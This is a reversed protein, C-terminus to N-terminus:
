TATRPSRARAPAERSDTPALSAEGAFLAEGERVFRTAGVSRYFSLARELQEEGREKDDGEFLNKAARLRAEAEDSLSGIKEYADAARAFEGAFYWKGAEAWVPDRRSTLVRGGDEGLEFATVVIYPLDFGSRLALSDFIELSEDLAERADDTRGVLLLMRGYIGLASALVSTDVSSRAAEISAAADDIGAGDGRSLRILGRTQLAQWAHYHVGQVEDLYADAAELAEDWRGQRLRQQPLMGSLVRRQPTNGYSESLRLAEEFIPVSETFRGRHRLYHALAVNGRISEPSGISRGIEISKELDAFGAEDEGLDLEAAGISMLAAARLEDLGLSEALALAEGAIRTSEAHEGARAAGRALVCLISAKTPSAELESALASATELHRASRERQGRSWLSDVLLAEAEAAGERDHAAQLADSAALLEEEGRGEAIWLARGLALLLRARLPDDSAALDLARRYFAAATDHSHLSVARDGARRLAIGARASLQTDVEGGMGLDLASVYHNALLEAQEESRGFSEIWHAVRIHKEARIARPIAAYAADRILGHAFAYEAENEVSSARSRRLFAKQELAHLQEDVTWRDSGAMAALTGTWFVGGVVAADQALAKKADPLADLRATILAQLTEPVGQPDGRETLMRAYQEAYLPNGGAKRVVSASAEETLGCDALLTRTLTETEGDSLPELALLTANAGTAWGPRRELLEPRATGLVFLPADTLRDVLSSVFDLMGEDAWHLDDFVLVVAQREAWAQLFRRWAAFSEPRRDDGTSAGEIGVLPALHRRIWEAEARDAVVAEVADKVKTVRTETGDQELVGAEAKVIEGWAWFSGGEGYPLSRGRRWSVPGLADSRILEIHEHVLRSKGIGPVGVVTVLEARREDRARVLSERLVSLERERGVFSASGLREVGVPTQVGLAERATVLRGKGKLEPRTPAGYEIAAETARYTTEDVLVSGPQAATQLRAATNVVDGSVIGEGSDLRADLAILAEGTTVGIRLELAGEDSFADRIALAARVAREPDDEHAVPAGFVAMVADGIFKEVTGGFRELEARVQAHYPQLVRRVDEPDMREARATFGVLDCFLCTIVKREERGAAEVTLAAGCNACRPFGAPTEQGCSPCVVTM